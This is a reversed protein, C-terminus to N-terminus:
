PTVENGLADLAEFSFVLKNDLKKSGTFGPAVTGTVNLAWDKSGTMSVGGPGVPSTAPKNGGAALKQTLTSPTIAEQAAGDVLKAGNLNLTQLGAIDPAGSPSGTFEKLSVKVPYNSLNTIKHTASTINTHNSAADSWYIISTPLVVKIWASDGAPPLGLDPDETEPDIQGIRGIFETDGSTVGTYTDAFAPAASGIAGTAVLAILSLSLKKKM